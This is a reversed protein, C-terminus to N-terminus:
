KGIKIRPDLVGYILDVSLNGVAILFAYFLAGGIIMSYDRGGVSKILERAMGPINFITEVFLAGTLVAAIAPGMITAVPILSNRLIHRTIVTWGTLGKARATRVYDQRMVELVSSRTLRTIYAMGGFGLALTPLLWPRVGTWSKPNVEFKGFLDVFAKSNNLVRLAFLLLLLSVILSPLVTFLTSVFLSVYDISTNQKLAAIVGLPIGLLISLLLGQIGLRASFAFRSPQNKSERKFLVAQVTKSGRSAYTPGLNGCIAGCVWHMAGTKTDIERDVFM